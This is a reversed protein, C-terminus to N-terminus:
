QTDIICSDATVCGGDLDAIWCLDANPCHAYDVLCIESAEREAAPVGPRIGNAVKLHRMGM